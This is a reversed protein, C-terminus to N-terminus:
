TNKSGFTRLVEGEEDQQELRDTSPSVPMRNMMVLVDLQALAAILTARISDMQQAMLTQPTIKPSEMPTDWADDKNIFDTM